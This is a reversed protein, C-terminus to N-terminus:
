IDKGETDVGSRKLVECAMAVPVHAVAESAPNNACLISSTVTSSIGEIQNASDGAKLLHELYRRRLKLFNIQKGGASRAVEAEIDKFFIHVKPAPKCCCAMRERAQRLLEDYSTAVPWAVTLAMSSCQEDVAALERAM